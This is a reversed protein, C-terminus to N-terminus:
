MICVSFVAHLIVKFSSSWTALQRALLMMGDASFLGAHFPDLAENEKM